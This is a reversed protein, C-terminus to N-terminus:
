HSFLFLSGGSLPYHTVSLAHYLRLLYYEKFSKHHFAILTEFSEFKVETGRDIKQIARM